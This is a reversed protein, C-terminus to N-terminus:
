KNYTYLVIVKAVWGWCIGEEFKRCALANCGFDCTILTCRREERRRRAPVDLFAIIWARSRWRSLIMRLAETIQLAATKCDSVLAIDISYLWSIEGNEADIMCTHPIPESIESHRRIHRGARLTSADAGEKPNM